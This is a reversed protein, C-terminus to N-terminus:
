SKLKPPVLVYNLHDRYKKVSVSAVLVTKSGQFSHGQHEM